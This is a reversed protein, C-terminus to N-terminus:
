DKRKGRILSDPYRALEDTLTELSKAADSVDDLMETLRYQLASDPAVVSDISQITDRMGNIALDLSQASGNLGSLLEDVDEVVNSKDLKDVMSAVGELSDNLNAGISEFPLEAIGEAIETLRRAIKTYQGDATPLILYDGQQALPEVTTVSAQDPALDVYLSGTLYSRTKLQARMGNAVLDAFMENLEGLTPAESPNLREPQIAIVVNIERDASIGADLGIHEVKGVQIGRFEVPAGVSLGRVSSTFKMLYPYSYTLAGEAVAERDSFLHFQSGARALAHDGDIDPPTIFALGGSILSAVSEINAVVGNAGIEVGVGSVNWFTTNTKILQDYPSEIFIRIEVRGAEPLLRYRTVEGVRVQRHYVPSGIDLSGLTESLMTYQTGQEFSRVSPPETLGNFERQRVGEEGPDMEIYVGSLLTDLGSVGALSIRPSVVWFRTNESLLPAVQPDMEIFVTVKDFSDNLKTDTVKGVVVDRFRVTTKGIAIGAADDFVIQIEPGRQQWATFALWAAILVAILPVIWIPSFHRVKKLHPVNETM